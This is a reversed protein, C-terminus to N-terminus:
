LMCKVDCTFRAGLRVEADIHKVNLVNLTVTAGLTASDSYYTQSLQVVEEARSMALSHDGGCVENLFRNDYRLAM